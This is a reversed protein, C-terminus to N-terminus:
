DTEVFLPYQYIVQEKKIKSRFQEDVAEIIPKGPYIVGSRSQEDWKDHCNPCLGVANVREDSGGYRQPVIHHIELKRPKTGCDDCTFNQELRVQRKTEKSFAFTSLSAIGIFSAITLITEKRM